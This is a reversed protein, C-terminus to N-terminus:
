VFGHLRIHYLKSHKVEVFNSGGGNIHYETKLTNIQHGSVMRIRPEEQRGISPKTLPDSLLFLSLFPAFSSAM